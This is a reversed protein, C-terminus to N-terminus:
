IRVCVCVCVCVHAEHWSAPSSVYNLGAILFSTLYEGVRPNHKVQLACVIVGFRVFLFFGGSNKATGNRTQDHQRRNLGGKNEKRVDGQQQVTQVTNVLENIIKKKKGGRTTCSSTPALRFRLAVSSDLM